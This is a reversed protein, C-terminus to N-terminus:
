SRRKGSETRLMIKALNPGEGLVIDNMSNESLEKKRM